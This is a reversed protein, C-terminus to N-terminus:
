PKIEWKYEIDTLRTYDAKCLAGCSGYVCSETYSWDSWSNTPSNYWRGQKGNLKCFIFYGYTEFKVSVTGCPCASCGTGASPLTAPKTGYCYNDSVQTGKNSCYTSCTNSYWIYCFDGADIAEQLNKGSLLQIENAYHFPKSKDSPSSTYTTKLPIAPCLKNSSSLAQYLTMEGDKVSVWIQNINHGPNLLVGSAYIHSPFVFNSATIENITKNIGDIGISINTSNHYSKTVDVGVGSIFVSIIIISLLTIWYGGKKM